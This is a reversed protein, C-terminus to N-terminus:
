HGIGVKQAFSLDPGDQRLVRALFEDGDLGSREALARIKGPEVPIGRAEMLAGIARGFM